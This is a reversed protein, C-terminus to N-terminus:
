EGQLVKKIKDLGAEMERGFVGRDVMWLLPPFWLHLPMPRFRRAELIYTLRTGQGEPGLTYCWLFVHRQRPGESVTEWALRRGPELQTVTSTDEVGARSSLRGTSKFVSGAGLPGPSAREVRELGFSLSGSWEVHREVDALYAFVRAPPAAIYISKSAVAM